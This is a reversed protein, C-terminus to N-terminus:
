NYAKDADTEERSPSKLEMIAISLGNLFILIDPRRTDTEVFTWQNSIIFLNNCDNKFDAIYIISSRQEGNVTYSVDIGNPFYDTFVTNKRVLEGNEFNHLKYFAEKVAEYPMDKNIRWLSDELM